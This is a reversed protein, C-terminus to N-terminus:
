ASSAAGATTPTAPAPPSPPDDGTSASPAGAGPVSAGWMPDPLTWSRSPRPARAWRAGARGEPTLAGVMRAAWEEPEPAVGDLGTPLPMPHWLLGPVGPVVVLVGDTTTDM